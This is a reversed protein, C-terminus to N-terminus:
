KVARSVLNNLQLSRINRQEAVFKGYHLAGITMFVYFFKLGTIDGTFLCLVTEMMYLSLILGYIPDIKKLRFLWFAGLCLLLILYVGPIWGVELFTELIYNHPYLGIGTSAFYGIGHGMFKNPIMDLSVQYMQMRIPENIGTWLLSVRSWTTYPLFAEGLKFAIGSFIATIILRKIRIGYLFVIAVALAILPGKSATSLMLVLLGPVLLLIMKRNKAFYLLIVVAVAICRSLHIPNAGYPSLRVSSSKIFDPISIACVCLGGFLLTKVLTKLDDKTKFIIPPLVVYLTSFTLMRILKDFSAIVTFNTWLGAVLWMALFAGGWWWCFPVRPNRIFEVAAALLAVMLFGLSLQASWLSAYLSGAIGISGLLKM